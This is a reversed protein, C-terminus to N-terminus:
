KIKHHFSIGNRNLLDFILSALSWAWIQNGKIGVLFQRAPLCDCQTFNYVIAGKKKEQLRVEYGGSGIAGFTNDTGEIIKRLKKNDAETIFVTM